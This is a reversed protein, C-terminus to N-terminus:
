CGVRDIPLCSADPDQPPAAQNRCAASVAEEAFHPESFTLPDQLCAPGRTKAILFYRGSRTAAQRRAYLRGRMVARRCARVAGFKAARAEVKGLALGEYSYAGMLLSIRTGTSEVSSRRSTPEGSRLGHTARHTITASTAASRSDVATMRSATPESLASATRINRIPRRRAASSEVTGTSMRRYRSRRSRSDGHSKAIAMRQPASIAVPSARGKFVPMM